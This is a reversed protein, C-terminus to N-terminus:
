KKKATLGAGANFKFFIIDGDLVTYNKGQQRYGGAAKCGAESGHEKFEDFKMVEAMIFGKQITWAKVEDPGATFFYILQLAKYGQLIIKELCPSCKTEEIYAKREEETEMDMLKQEFAGSLPIITAGPDNKDLYEKIKPLFKNKKRIFDKESLNVLYIM